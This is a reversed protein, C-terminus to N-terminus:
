REQGNTIVGLVYDQALSTILEVAGKMPLLLHLCGEFFWVEAAAQGDETEAMGLEEVVAPVGRVIREGVPEMVLAVFAECDLNPSALSQYALRARAERTGTTDSLTDDLDFFLGRVAREGM